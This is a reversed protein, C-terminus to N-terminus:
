LTSKSKSTRAASTQAGTIWFANVDHKHQDGLFVLSAFVSVFPSAAKCFRLLKGWRWSHNWLRTPPYCAAERVPALSESPRSQPPPQTWTHVHTKWHDESLSRKDLTPTFSTKFVLLWYHCNLEQQAWVEIWVHRTRSAASTERQTNVSSPAIVGVGGDRDSSLRPRLVSRM